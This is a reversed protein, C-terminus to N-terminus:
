PAVAPYDGDGPLLLPPPDGAVVSEMDWLPADRYITQRWTVAWFVKGQAFSKATFVPKAEVADPPSLHALGWRSVSAAPEQLLATLADCIALAMEDRHILRQPEGLARDEAVVYAALDVTTARQGASTSADAPLRVAAVAIAPATFVEGAVVDSIDLKGPHATVQVDPFLRTLTAVVGARLAFVGSADILQSLSRPEIM